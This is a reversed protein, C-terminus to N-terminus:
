LLLRPDFVAVAMGRYRPTNWTAPLNMDWHCRPCWHHFGKGRCMDCPIMDGPDYYLPDEEYGDHGGDGGCDSCTRSFCEHGCNPCYEESFDVEDHRPYFQQQGMYAAGQILATPNTAASM